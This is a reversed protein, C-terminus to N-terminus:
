KRRAALGLEKGHEGKKDADGKCRTLEEESAQCQTTLKWERASGQHVTSELPLAGTRSSFSLVLVAGPVCCTSLLHKLVVRRM